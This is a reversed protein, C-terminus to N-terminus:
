TRGAGSHKALTGPVTCRWETNGPEACCVFCSRDDSLMRMILPFGGNCLVLGFLVDTSSVRSNNTTVTPPKNYATYPAFRPGIPPPLLYRSQWTGVCREESTMTLIFCSVGDAAAVCRRIETSEFVRKKLGRSARHPIRSARPLRPSVAQDELKFLYM